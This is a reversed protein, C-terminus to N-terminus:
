CKTYTLNVGINLFPILKRGLTVDLAGMSTVNIISIVDYKRIAIMGRTLATGTNLLDYAGEGRFAM